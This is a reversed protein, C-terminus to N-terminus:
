EAPPAKEFGPVDPSPKDWDQAESTYINHSAHFASPDDLTGAYIIRLGGDVSSGIHSGCKPCFHRSIPNGSGGPMAYTVVEGSTIKFAPEPVGIAATHGTGSYKRCENCYCNGAFIPEGSYEYRVAGCLCGGTKTDSM